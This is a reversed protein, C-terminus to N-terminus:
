VPLAAQLFANTLTTPQRVAVFVQFVSTQKKSIVKIVACPASCAHVHWLMELVFLISMSQVEREPQSKAKSQVQLM